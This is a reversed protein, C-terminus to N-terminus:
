HPQHLRNDMQKPIDRYGDISKITGREWKSSSDMAIRELCHATSAQHYLPIQQPSFLLRLYGRNDKQYVVQGLWVGHVGLPLTRRNLKWGQKELEETFKLDEICTQPTEKTFEWSFEPGELENEFSLGFWSDGNVYEAVGLNSQWDQGPIVYYWVGLAEKGSGQIEAIKKRHTFKTEFIKEVDTKNVAGEPSATIQLLKGMLTDATLPAVPQHAGQQDLAQSSSAKNTANHKSTQEQAHAATVLLALSVGGRILFQIIPHTNTKTKTFIRNM